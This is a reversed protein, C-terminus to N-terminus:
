VFSKSKQKRECEESENFGDSGWTEFFYKKPELTLGRCLKKRFKVFITTGM